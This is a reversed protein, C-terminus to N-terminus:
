KGGKTRVRFGVKGVLKMDEGFPKMSQDPTIGVKRIRLGSKTPSTNSPIKLHIRRSTLRVHPPSPTHNLSCSAFSSSQPPYLPRPSTLQSFSSPHLLSSNFWVPPLFKCLDALSYLVVFIPLFHVVDASASLTWSGLGDVFGEKRLDLSTVGGTVPSVAHVLLEPSAVLDGKMWDAKDIKNSGDSGTKDWKLSGHSSEDIPLHSHRRTYLGQGPSGSDDVDYDEDLSDNAMAAINDRSKSGSNRPISIGRSSSRGSREAATKESRAMVREFDAAYTHEFAPTIAKFISSFSTYPTGQVRATIM